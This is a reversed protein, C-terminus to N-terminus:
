SSRCVYELQLTWTMVAEALEELPIGFPPVGLSRLEGRHLRTLADVKDQAEATIIATAVEPTVANQICFYCIDAKIAIEVIGEMFTTIAQAIKIYEQSTPKCQILQTVAKHASMAGPKMLVKKLVQSSM